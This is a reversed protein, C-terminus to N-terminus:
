RAADLLRGLQEAVEEAQELPAWRGANEVIHLRAGRILVAAERSLELPTVQDTRGCLVLVPVEVKALMERHDARCIIAQIQRVAAAGVACMIRQGLTMLPENPLATPM